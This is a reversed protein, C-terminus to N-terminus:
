GARVREHKFILYHFLKFLYSFIFAFIIIIFFIAYMETVKFRRQRAIFLWGIGNIADQSGTNIMEAFIIYGWGLGFVSAFHKWIKPLATPFLVYIITQLQSFGLTYATNLYIEDVEDIEKIVLGLLVFFMGLCLFIIKQREEIGFFAFTLPLLAAIPIFSGIVLLPYIFNRVYNNTSMFVGLPIAFFLVFFFAILERRLSIWIAYFLSQEWKFGENKDNTGKALSPFSKIIDLPNPLVNPSFLPNSFYNNYYKVSKLIDLIYLKDSLSLGKKLWYVDKKNDYNYYKQIFEKDNDNSIKNIIQDKFIDRSIPKGPIRVVTVIIWSFVLLCIFLIGMLIKSANNISSKIWIKKM